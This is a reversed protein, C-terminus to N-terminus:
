IIQNTIIYLGCVMLVFAVPLPRIKKSFFPLVYVCLTFGALIFIYVVSISVVSETAVSAMMGYFMFDTARLRLGNVEYFIRPTTNGLQLNTPVLFPTFHAAFRPRFMAVIDGM